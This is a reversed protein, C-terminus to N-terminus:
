LSQSTKMTKKTGLHYLQHNVDEYRSPYVWQHVSASNSARFIFIHTNGFIPTDWFPHNIISFGILISSKPTGNNKSVGMDDLPSQHGLTKEIAGSFSVSSFSVGFKSVMMIPTRTLKRPHIFNLHGLTKRLTSATSKGKIESSHVGDYQQHFFCQVM